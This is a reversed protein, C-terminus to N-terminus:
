CEMVVAVVSVWAFFDHIYTSGLVSTFTYTHAHVIFKLNVNLSYVLLLVFLWCYICYVNVYLIIYLLIVFKTKNNRKYHRHQKKFYSFDKLSTTSTLHNTGHIFISLIPNFHLCIILATNQPWKVTNCVEIIGLLYGSACYIKQPFNQLFGNTIEVQDIIWQLKDCEWNLKNQHAETHLLSLSTVTAQYIKVFM